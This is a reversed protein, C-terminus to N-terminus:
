SLHYCMMKKSFKVQLSEELRKFSVDSNDNEFELGHPISAPVIGIWAENEAPFYPSIYEFDISIATENLGEDYECVNYKFIM